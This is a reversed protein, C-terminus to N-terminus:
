RPGSMLSTEARRENMKCPGEPTLWTLYRNTGATPRATTGHVVADRVNMPCQNLSAILLTRPV